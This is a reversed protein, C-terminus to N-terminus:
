CHSLLPLESSLDKRDGTAVRPTGQESGETLNSGSYNKKFSKRSTEQQSENLSEENAEFYFDAGQWPMYHYGM